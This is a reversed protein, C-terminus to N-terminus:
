RTLLNKFNVIHHMVALVDIFSWNWYNGGVNLSLVGLCGYADLIKTYQKKITETEASASDHFYFCVSNCFLRTRM